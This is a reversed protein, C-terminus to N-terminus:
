NMKEMFYGVRPDDYRPRFDNQPVEILSHQLKVSVFRADTIEDAGYNVPLPNDYVYEVSVDTNNPFNKVALYKSKKSNLNGLHFHM